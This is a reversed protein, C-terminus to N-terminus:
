KAKAGTCIQETARVIGNFSFHDILKRSASQMSRLSKRNGLLDNLFRVCDKMDRQRIIMGNVGEKILDVAGGCKDSMIIACGSAMAENAGLGWTESQSPLIFVDGIRYMVPMTRQNQFDIFRIRPDSATAQKLENELVGNGVLIIRLRQDSIEKALATIFFPDKNPELKGAFLLTLNDETLDLKDRWVKAEAKYTDDPEAFRNNDIAHPALVLQDERLGHKLYYMKNNTGVYLAYDVHRYVWKLSIRRLWQKIGPRENLLTSDGRFLVPVKKHFYRLCALHSHFSWGIVLIAQAGWEEVEKILTPNIVGQFHHTGPDKAKNKVFTYEYGELMPIDWSIVKGFGVDHKEGSKTQEWTYFVKPLVKKGAALLKFWPDNYQIPHTTIIALRKM